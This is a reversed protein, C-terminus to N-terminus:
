VRLFIKKRYLFLLFLWEAALLGIWFFVEGWAEGSIRSLGGFFFKSIDGFNVIEKGLYITISNMGIVTFFFTWRRKQWVDIILYFLSLMLLSYGGAMLNFTTTWAAKIIPYVPQLISAIIIFALGTSSMILLKRYESIKRSRLLEGTIAGMLTIGTASVICLLGEPDFVKGYLRGPLFLRDIYGNICGEPTLVGAGIGPVPIFNQIIAYGTLISGLWILRAKVTKTYIVILSAFLYALGIQGLVSAFRFSQDGDVFSLQLLGNYVFGLIVLTLGRRVVKLALPKKAAGKKIKSLVAFAIAVGSIFMFLPFITDEFHFGVWKVHLHQEAFWYLWGWNTAKSLAEALEGGGIIWLMDFGRLTDLSQLRDSLQKPAM